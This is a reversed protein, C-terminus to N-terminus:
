GLGDSNEDRGTSDRRQRTLFSAVPPPRGAIHFTPKREDAAVPLSQCALADGPHLPGLATLGPPRIKMVRDVVADDTGGPFESRVTLARQAQISM